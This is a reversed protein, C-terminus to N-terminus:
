YGVARKRIEVVRPPQVPIGAYHSESTASMIAVVIDEITKQELPLGAKEYLPAMVGHLMRVATEFAPIHQDQDM